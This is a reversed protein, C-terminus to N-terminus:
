RWVRPLSAYLAVMILGGVMGAGVIFGGGFVAWDHITPMPITFTM